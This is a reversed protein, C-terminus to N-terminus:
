ATTTEHINGIIQGHQLAIIRHATAPLLTLDHTAVIVTTGLANFESFIRLIEQSLQPDLNGTPEDALLISPRNVVARAIGVRQREGVSLFSPLMNQTNLLGVKHLAAQTRRRIEQRRYGAIHLPIAVNDFVTRDDLLHPNQFVMGINRRMLMVGKHSLLGIPAGNITIEGRTVPEIRLLLKLLSSKGAGSHGSLFAMEGRNLHFSVQNLATRGGQYQKCVHQLRIM